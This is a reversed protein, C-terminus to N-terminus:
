TNDKLLIDFTWMDVFFENAYEFPIYCYGNDGWDIGFSNRVKFFKNTKDYGTICMAHGGITEENSNPMIVFPNDKDVNYFSDFIHVGIVVPQELDIAEIIQNNNYVRHYHKLTRNTADIYASYPPRVTFKSIDYPWLSEKCIGYEAVAAIGDRIYAGVDENVYNDPLRANYYVFLRSLDIYNNPQAKKLLLEYGGVIAQGICSGLQLQEEVPSAWETLDVSTRTM